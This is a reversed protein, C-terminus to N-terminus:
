VHQGAAAIQAPDDDLMLDTHGVRFPQRLALATPERLRRQGDDIWTGNSSGQDEIWWKGGRYALRAHKRSVWQDHELAVALDQEHRGILGTGGVVVTVRGDDFGSLEVVAVPPAVEHAEAELEEDAPEPAPGDGPAEDAGAAGGGGEDAAAPSGIAPLGVATKPDAKPDDDAGAARPHQRNGASAPLEGNDDDSM